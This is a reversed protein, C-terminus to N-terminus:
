AFLIKVYILSFHKSLSVLYGRFATQIKIAASEQIERQCQPADNRRTKVPQFEESNEKGQYPSPPVETPRVVQAAASAITVTLAHKSQEEEAECLTTEKSPPQPPATILPLRKTKSM